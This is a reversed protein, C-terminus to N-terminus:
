YNESWGKKTKQDEDAYAKLYGEIINKPAFYFWEQELSQKTRIAAIMDPWDTSFAHITTLIDYVIDYPNEIDTLTENDILLVTNTQEDFFINKIHFDAHILTAGLMKGPLPKMFHKYFNAMTFGITQYIHAIRAKNEPTPDKFFDLVYEYVPKGPARPM